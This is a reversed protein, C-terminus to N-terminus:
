AARIEDIQYGPVAFLEQSELTRIEVRKKRFVLKSIRYKIGLWLLTPILDVSRKIFWM